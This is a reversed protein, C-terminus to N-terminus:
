VAKVFEEAWELRTTQRQWLCLDETLQVWDLKLGASAIQDLAWRVAPEIKDLPLSLMKDFKGRFRRRAQEESPECRRMQSALADSPSHEIPCFAYLKAILWAAGRRPARPSDKRLPWWLGTFLDFGRVSEDLGQGAHTRLLGMEGTKLGSLTRIFKETPTV